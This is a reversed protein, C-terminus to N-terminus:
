LHPNLSHLITNNQVERDQIESMDIMQIIRRIQISNKLLDRWVEAVTSAQDQGVRSSMTPIFKVTARSLRSIGM